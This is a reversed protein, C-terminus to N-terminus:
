KATELCVVYTVGWLTELLLPNAGSIIILSALSVYIYATTVLVVVSFSM